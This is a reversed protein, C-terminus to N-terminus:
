LMGKSIGLAYFERNQQKTYKGWGQYYGCDQLLKSYDMPVKIENLDKPFQGKRQRRKIWDTIERTADAFSAYSAILAGNDAKSGGEKQWRSRKDYMYGFPSNYLKAFKHKYNNSEHMSQGVIMQALLDPMGEDKATNYIINAPELKYM